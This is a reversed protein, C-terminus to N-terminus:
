ILGASTKPQGLMLCRPTNEEVEKGMWRGRGGGSGRGGGGGGAGEVEGQERRRVSPIYQYVVRLCEIRPYTTM